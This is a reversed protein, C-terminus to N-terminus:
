KIPEGPELSADSRLHLLDQGDEKLWRTITAGQSLCLLLLLLLLLLLAPVATAAVAASTM